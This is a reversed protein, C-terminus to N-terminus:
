CQAGTFRTLTVQSPLPPPPLPLASPPLFLAPSLSRSQGTVPHRGAGNVFIIRSGGIDNNGYNASNGSVAADTM